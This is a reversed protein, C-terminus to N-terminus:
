GIGFANRQASWELPLDIRNLLTETTLEVPQQGQCIAEVVAPAVFALRALREVYRKAIGENRAVEALSRVRGSALEDFWVRARALAKLLAPDVRRPPENGAAIVIRTEVGRRKMTLPVFRSLGLVSSTQVGAHSCPVQIKLTVRIGDDHLEIRDIIEAMCVRAEAENQLRRCWASTADLTGSRDPSQIQSRETMGLMEARDSLIQQAAIAVARELEPAALRWGKRDGSASGDVLSRSVYYRYRRGVKATGQAYLPEGDADFIKGALPSPIASTASQRGRAANTRLHQRVEEWLERPVIAEHQGPYREQKHRIEGIHLPNALLEYLAGRSFRCGGSKVGKQSIRVKSVIGREALEQSLQRVCGLELYREYIYRVTKAEAHNIVLRRERVDYGLPPVGGMWMGKRKSAGIKDRIREGTVEREFQAFSLLVNLTLRGMSTTTNFQKTVAVFSVGRADFVEVMKAFDALSRTLLDRSIRPPPEAGYLVRWRSKLDASTAGALVAIESAPKRSRAHLYEKEHATRGGARVAVCM